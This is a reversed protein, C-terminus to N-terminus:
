VGLKKRVDLLSQNQAFATPAKTIALKILNDLTYGVSIGALASVSGQQYQVLLLAAVWAGVISVGVSMEKVHIRDRLESFAPMRGETNEALVQLGGQGVVGVLVWIYTRFPDKGSLNLGEILFDPPIYLAGLGGGLLVFLLSYTVLRRWMRTSCKYIQRSRGDALGNLILFRYSRISHWIKERSVDNPVWPKAVVDFDIAAGANLLDLKRSIRWPVVVQGLCEMTCDCLRLLDPLAALLDEDKKSKLDWQDSLERLSLQLSITTETFDAYDRIASTRLENLSGLAMPLVTFVDRVTAKLSMLGENVGSQPSAIVHAISVRLRGLLTLIESLPCLFRPDRIVQTALESQVILGEEKAPAFATSSM